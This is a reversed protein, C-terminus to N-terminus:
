AHIRSMKLDRRTRHIKTLEDILPQIIKARKGIRRLDFDLLFKRGGQKHSAFFSISRENHLIKQLVRSLVIAGVSSDLDARVPVGTINHQCNPVSAACNRAAFVYELAKMM